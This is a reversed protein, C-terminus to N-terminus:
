DVAPPKGGEAAAQQAKHIEAIMAQCRGHTAFAAAVIEQAATVKELATGTLQAAVLCVIQIDNMPSAVHLVPQQAAALQQPTLVRGNHM